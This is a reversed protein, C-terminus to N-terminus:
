EYQKITEKLESINNITYKPKQIENIPVVSSFKGQKVLVTILGLENGITIEGQVRDGVVIASKDTGIIEQFTEVSKNDTFIIKKFFKNIGFKELIENRGAEKKSILFLDHKDSLGDLLEFVDSYLEQTDPNFITRNYDFIIKM